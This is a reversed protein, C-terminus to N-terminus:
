IKEPLTDAEAKPLPSQRAAWADTQSPYDLKIAKARDKMRQLESDDRIKEFSTDLLSSRASEQESFSVPIHAPGEQDSFLVPIQGPSGQHQDDLFSLCAECVSVHSDIVELDIESLKGSCYALLVERPPCKTTRPQSTSEM